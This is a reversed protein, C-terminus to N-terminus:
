APQDEFVAGETILDRINKPRNESNPFGQNRIDSDVPFLLGFQKLKQIDLVLVSRNLANESLLKHTDIEYAFSTFSALTSMLFATTISLQKM